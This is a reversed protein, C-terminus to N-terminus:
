EVTVSKALNRPQDVDTGKCVAVHYALLHAPLCYLIPAIFSDSDSVPVIHEAIHTFKEVVEDNTIIIIKGGRAKVEELNHITKDILKDNPVLAVIFLNEDILAIPGHKLEGAPIAEAHIYSIEKLKLAAECALGYAVGRGLYIINPISKLNSAIKAINHEKKIVNHMLQPLRRLSKCLSFKEDATIHNQSFATEIALLSLILLQATFAKTSAVGIEPGAIIDIVYDALNAMSSHKVNTILLTKLGEDKVMKLAQLSDATEGSQSIFVVLRKEPFHKQYLFESAIEVKCSINAINEFWTKAILAAYYSSGCAVFTVRELKKFDIDADKFLIENTERNCYSNLIDTIVNPQENIEKHMFHRYGSKGTVTQSFNINKFERYINKLNADYISVNDKSLIVIDGDDLYCISKADNIVAYADSSLISGRDTNAVLLPSGKKAAYIHDQHDVHIIAIAYSGELIKVLEKISLLIDSYKKYLDDLLYPIVETDTETIFNYGKGELFEKLSRYNEIIGNHVVAFKEYKHPHANIESPKGHTAWRTHAIGINAALDLKSLRSELEAVKGISKCSELKNNKIVAIGSSDYGRYELKKLGLVLESTIDESSNFGFIGCMLLLKLRIM